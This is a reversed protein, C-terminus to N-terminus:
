AALRFGMSRLMLLLHRARPAPGLSAQHCPTHKSHPKWMDEGGWGVAGSVTCVSDGAQGPLRRDPCQWSPGGRLM